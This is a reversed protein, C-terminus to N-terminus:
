TLPNNDTFVTFKPSYYLYDRFRDTIAWKLALFELKGAHLHYNKEAASLARSAYAVVRMVGEHKQYLVAGLGKRRADTHLIFAKPFDPYAMIPPNSLHGVLEELAAQQTSGWSVLTKSPLQRTNGTTTLLDYIPKAIKAFNRMYRQYYSLIGALQRVEGVIKPLTEKLKEVAKVSEPDMRYGDGSVIRGLFRVERQFLSCKSPKLKVRHQRLKRLVERLHEGYAEFTRSFVIIDDLYPIAVKDRLDGLCREMFRQFNALVNMLGFPIRVSEYLGWPTVFATTARIEKSM